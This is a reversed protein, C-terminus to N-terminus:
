RPSWNIPNHSTRIPVASPNLIWAKTPELGVLGVLMLKHHEIAACRDELGYPAPELGALSELIAPYNFPM